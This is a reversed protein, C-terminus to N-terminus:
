DEAGGAAGAVGHRDGLRLAEVIVPVADRARGTTRLIGEGGVSIAHVKAGTRGLHRPPAPEPAPPMRPNHCILPHCSVPRAGTAATPGPGCTTRRRRLYRHERRVDVRNSWYAPGGVRIISVAPHPQRHLRHDPVAAPCSSPGSGTSIM